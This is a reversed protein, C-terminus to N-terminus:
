LGRHVQTFTNKDTDDGLGLQVSGNDGCSHLSRDNKLIFTHHGGCAIQKINTTAKTFTNKTTNNGLGLQGYTNDGCAYVSGDNKLIFSCDEGCVIQKVDKNINTTVQTFITRTTGDNLGLEGHYNYGCSWVNNDTKLILTHLGGCAIQKVDNNINTTVQTFTTRDTTDNLGLQGKSNDGCSWVSGNTKLIFTHQDGCAIQKVDNSINTTVKTFTNYANTTSNLGLQGNVNSGCCWVSGDNKFIFTHYEGCTIQKVDNNINTTIKTFTNHVKTDRAGIGLQGNGNGGCSWISGDNKLIITYDSGCAIQKVDNNVNKTVKTFSARKNVDGLGLGGYTNAGCGWISGDHKLVFTYNYGCAIQKIDGVSIGSSVLLNLLNDINENGTIDYGSEQMLGALTSRINEINSNLSNVQNTLNTKDTNLSNVQNTLNTKETNLNNVQSTLNTKDKNLNNITNNDKTFEQDVKGILSAIDDEETVNVGEDTLVQKLDSKMDNIKDSMASFTDNSSLPEGIADAILQKGNNASQFLENIAGVIDKSKTALDNDTKEQYSSLDVEVEKGELEELRGDLDEIGNEINNLADKSIVENSIWTKKKYAM